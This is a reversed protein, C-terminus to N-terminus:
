VRGSYSISLAATHMNGGSTKPWNFLLSLIAVKIPRDTAPPHQVADPPPVLSLGLGDDRDVVDFEAQVLDRNLRAM